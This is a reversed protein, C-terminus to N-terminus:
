IRFCINFSLPHLRQNVSQAHKVFISNSKGIAAIECFALGPNPGWASPYTTGISRTNIVTIVKALGVCTVTQLQKPVDSSTWIFCDKVTVGNSILIKFGAM